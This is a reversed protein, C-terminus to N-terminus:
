LQCAKKDGQGSLTAEAFYNCLDYVLLRSGIGTIRKIKSYNNEPIPRVGGSMCEEYEGLKNAIACLRGMNQPNIKPINLPTFIAGGNANFLSLFCGHFDSGM